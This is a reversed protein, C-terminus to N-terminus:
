GRPKRFLLRSPTLGAALVRRERNSKAEWFVEKVVPSGPEDGDPQLGEMTSLLTEYQEGRELVDTQVFVFGGPELLRVMERVFPPTVVLRKQQRKKWWPDPFHIFFCSVSADPQLRPLVFRADAAFVRARDGFGRRALRDDVIKAWKYRIELGVVAAQAAEAAREVIFAGRGPGIEIELPLRSRTLSFIDLSGVAPLTPADAYPHPKKHAPVANM